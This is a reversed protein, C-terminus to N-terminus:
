QRSVLDTSERRRVLYPRLVSNINEAACSTRVTRELINLLKEALPKLQPDTEVWDALWHQAELAAKRFQKQGNRLAHEWRWLRAV